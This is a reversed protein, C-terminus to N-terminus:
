ARRSRACAGTVIQTARPPSSRRPGDAWPHTERSSARRAKEDAPPLVCRRQQGAVIARPERKAPLKQYVVGETIGHMFCLSVRVELPHMTKVRPGCPRRRADITKKQEDDRRRLVSFNWSYLSAHRLRSARRTARPRRRTTTRTRLGGGEEVPSGRAAPVRAEPPSHLPRRRPPRLWPRTWPRTWPRRAAVLLSPAPAAACRRGPEHKAFREPEAAAAAATAALASAAAAASAITSRVTASGADAGLAVCAEGFGDM